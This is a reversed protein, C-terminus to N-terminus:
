MGRSPLVFASLRKDDGLPLPQCPGPPHVQLSLSSSDKTACGGPVAPPGERTLSGSGRDLYPPTFGGLLRRSPPLHQLAM